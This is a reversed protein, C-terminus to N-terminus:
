AAAATPAAATVAPSTQYALRRRVVAPAVRGPHFLDPRAPAPCTSAFRPPAPREVAPSRSRGWRGIGHVRRGVGDRSQRLRDGRGTVQVPEPVENLRGCWTGSGSVRAPHGIRAQNFRFTFFRPWPKGKGHGQLVFPNVGRSVWSVRA